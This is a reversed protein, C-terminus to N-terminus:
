TNNSTETVPPVKQLQKPKKNNTEPLPSSIRNNIPLLISNNDIKEENEKDVKKEEQIKALKAANALEEQEKKKRKKAIARLAPAVRKLIEGHYQHYISFFFCCRRM